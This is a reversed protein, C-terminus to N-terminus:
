FSSAASVIAYMPAVRGAKTKGQFYLRELDVHTINTIQAFGRAKLFPEIGGEPIGFALPEGM